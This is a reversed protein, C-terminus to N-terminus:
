PKKKARFYLIIGMIGLLYGIGGIVETLGPGKNQRIEALAKTIPELRTDLTEEVIERIRDTEVQSPSSPPGQLDDSSKSPVPTDAMGTIEDAELLFEARHGTGTELVLRLATEGPIKFSFEGNDDTKGELLINGSSDFVKIVGDKVKKKSNFYSDTYLTDGEVWAFIHVGHANASTGMFLLLALVQVMVRIMIWPARSTN